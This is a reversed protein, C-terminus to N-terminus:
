RAGGLWGKTHGYLTRSDEEANSWSPDIACGYIVGLLDRSRMSLGRLAYLTEGDVLPLLELLAALEVYASNALDLRADRGTAYRECEVSQADADVPGHNEHTTM